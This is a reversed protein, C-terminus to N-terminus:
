FRDADDLPPPRDGEGPREGQRQHEGLHQHEGQRQHREGQRQHQHQHQEGQRQEGQRQRPAHSVLLDHTPLKDGEVHDRNPMLLVKADGIRGVYYTAGKKSTHEWLGAIKTLPAYGGKRQETARSGNDKSM